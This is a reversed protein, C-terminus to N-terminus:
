DGQKELFDAGEFLKFIENAKYSSKSNFLQFLLETGVSDIEFVENTICNLIFTKNLFQSTYM